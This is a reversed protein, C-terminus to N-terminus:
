KQSIFEKWLRRERDEELWQLVVEKIRQGKLVKIVEWGDERCSKLLTSQRNFKGSPHQILFVWERTVVDIAWGFLLGRRTEYILYDCGLDIGCNGTGIGDGPRDKIVNWVLTQAAKIEDMVEPGEHNWLAHAASHCTWQLAYIGEEFTKFSKVALHRM